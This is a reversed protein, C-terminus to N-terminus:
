EELGSCGGGYFADLFIEARSHDAANPRDVRFLQHAGEAFGYEVDDLLLWGAQTLDGTDAGLARLPDDRAPSILLHNALDHQEQM